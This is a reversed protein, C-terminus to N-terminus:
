CDYDGGMAGTPAKGATQEHPQKREASGLGALERFSILTIGYDRLCRVVRPDCLTRVEIERELRYVSDLASDLGPHCGLETVGPPLEAFIAMLESVSVAKTCPAGEASQGYFAGCHRISEGISRVPVGLERAM